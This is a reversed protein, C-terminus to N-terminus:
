RRNDNADPPSCFIDTTTGNTRYLRGHILQGNYYEGIIYDGPQAVTHKKDFMSILRRESFKLTGNGHPQGYRFQGDWEGYSLANEPQSAPINIQRQASPAGQQETAEDGNTGPMFIVAALAVILLFVIGFFIPIAVPKKKPKGNLSSGRIVVGPPVQGDPKIRYTDEPNPQPPRPPQGYSNHPAPTIPITDNDYDPTMLEPRPYGKPQNSDM